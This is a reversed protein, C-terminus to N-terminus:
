PNAMAEALRAKAEALEGEALVSNRIDLIRGLEAKTWAQKTEGFYEHAVGRAILYEGLTLRGKKKPVCTGVLRKAYKDRCVLKWRFGPNEDCWQRTVETAVLAAAKQRKSRKEPTDVGYERSGFHFAIHAGVGPLIEGGDVWLKITDADYISYGIVDFTGEHIRKLTRYVHEVAKETITFSM